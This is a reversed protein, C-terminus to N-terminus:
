CKFLFNKFQEQNIRCHQNWDSSSHRHVIQLARDGPPQERTAKLKLLTAFLDCEFADHQREVVLLGLVSQYRKVLRSPLLTAAVTLLTQGVQQGVAIPMALLRGILLRQSLKLVFAEIGTLLLFNEGLKEVIEPTALFTRQGRFPSPERRRAM